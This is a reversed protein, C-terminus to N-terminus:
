TVVYIYHNIMTNAKFHDPNKTDLEWLELEFKAIRNEQSRNSNYIEACRQLLKRAKYFVEPLSSPEFIHLHDLFRGQSLAGVMERLDSRFVKGNVTYAYLKTYRVKTSTFNGSYMPWASFPYSEIKSIWAFSAVLFVLYILKKMNKQNKAQQGGQNM